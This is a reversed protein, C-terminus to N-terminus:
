RRHLCLCVSVNARARACSILGPIPRFADQANPSQEVDLGLPQECGLSNHNTSIRMQLYLRSFGLANHCPLPALTEVCECQGIASLALSLLSFCVTRILLDQEASKGSICYMGIEHLIFEAYPGGQGSGLTKGGYVTLWNDPNSMNQLAVKGSSWVHVRFESNADRTGKGSIEGESVCLTHRSTVSQLVVVSGGRFVAMVPSSGTAAGEAVAPPGSDQVSMGALQGTVGATTAITTLPPPASAQAEATKRYQGLDGTDGDAMAM